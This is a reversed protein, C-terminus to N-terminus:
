YAGNRSIVAPLTKRVLIDLDMEASNNEVYHLDLRVREEWPLDSRGSVQWLGTMGPKVLVCRRYDAPMQEPPTANPRPGVLSMEGRVVNLLQPLEDLSTKRLWQGFPTIRPDNRLKFFASNRGKDAALLKAAHAEADPVMTRFKYAKFERGHKGYRVQSFLAPGPSNIRILAAIVAIVPSLLVLLVLAVARDVLGRLFLRGGYYLPPSVEVLTSNGLERVSVRHPGVHWVPNVAVAVGLRELRWALRRVEDNNHGGAVVVTDAGARRVTTVLDDMSDGVEVGGFAPDLEVLNAPADTVCAAAVVPTSPDKTRSALVLSRVDEAPGVVVVPAPALQRGRRTLPLLSTRAACVVLATLPVAVLVLARSGPLPHIQALLGAGAWLAVATLVVSRADVLRLKLRGYNYGGVAWAGLTWFAPVLLATQLPLDRLVLALGAATALAAAADVGAVSARRLADQRTYSRGSTREQALTGVATNEVVSM